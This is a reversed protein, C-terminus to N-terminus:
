KNDLEKKSFLGAGVLAIDDIHESKKLSFRRENSAFINKLAVEKVRDLFLDSSKSIQGALIVTEVGLVNVLNAIGVGLYESMERIIDIAAQDGKRALDFVEKAGSIDQDIKEKAGRVIAKSSVYAELCGKGGCECLRGDKFVKMHGIEGALRFKDPSTSVVSFSGGLGTGITLLAINDKLNDISMEGILALDADNGFFVPVTSKIEELAFKINPCFIKKQNDYDVLGPIAIGISSIKLDSNELKGIIDLIKESLEFQEQPTSEVSRHYIKNESDVIGWKINTGGIDIAGFYQM